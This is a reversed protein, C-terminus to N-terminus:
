NSEELLELASKKWFPYKDLKPNEAIARLTEKSMASKGILSFRYAIAALVRTVANFRATDDIISEAAGLANLYDEASSTALAIHERAVLRDSPELQTATERALFLDSWAHTLAYVDLYARVKDISTLRDASSRATFLDRPEGSASAIDLLAKCRIQQHAFELFNTATQARKFLGSAALIAIYDAAVLDRVLNDPIERVLAFVVGEDNDLAALEPLLARYVVLQPGPSWRKGTTEIHYAPTSAGYGEAQERLWVSTDEVGARIVAQDRPSSDNEIQPTFLAVGRWMVILEEATRMAM